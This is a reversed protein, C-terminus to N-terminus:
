PSTLRVDMRCLPEVEVDWMRNEESSRNSKFVLDADGSSSLTFDGRSPPASPAAYWEALPQGAVRIERAFWLM